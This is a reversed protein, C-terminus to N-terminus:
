GIRVSCFFVVLIPVDAFVEVYVHFLISVTSCDEIWTKKLQDECVCRQVCVSPAFIIKRERIPSRCATRGIAEELDVPEPNCGQFNVHLGFIFTQLKSSTGKWPSKWTWFTFKGTDLVHLSEYIGVQQDFSLQMEAAAAAIEPATPEPM